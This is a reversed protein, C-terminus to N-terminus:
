LLFAGFGFTRKIAEWYYRQWGEVTKDFETSPIGSQSLSLKTSDGEDKLEITVTSHHGEPWTRFRWKQVIKKNPLLEVFTGTINGEFLNFKGGVSPNVQVSACTFARMLEPQTLVNYLEVPPCKFNQNCTYSQMEVKVGIQLQKLDPTSVSSPLKVGPDKTVQTKDGNKVETDKKPLIMGQTFDEKLSKIYKALQERIVKAGVTRMLQKMADADPGTASTTVNVDVEDANNEDSLNPIIVTGEINKTTGSVKGSWKLHLTWEFFFILKAKRNNASAEGEMKEIETIVCNGIIDNIELGNLLEDIKDKSWQSANKETWHWNNVNTADPREEVIWRPDGEGWKAM